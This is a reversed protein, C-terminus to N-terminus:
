LNASAILLRKIETEEIDKKDSIKIHRLGKGTGELLKSQLEAGRFFGLDVHSEYILIWSIDRGNLTYVINGWKVKEVIGPLTESVILRLKGAIEKQKPELKGMIEEVTKGKSNRM